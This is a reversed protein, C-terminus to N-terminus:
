FAEGIQYPIWTDIPSDLYFMGFGM